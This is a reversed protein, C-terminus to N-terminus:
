MRNSRNRVFCSSSFFGAQSLPLCHASTLNVPTGQRSAYPHCSLRTYIDIHTGGALKRSTQPFAYDLSTGVFAKDGWLRGCARCPPGWLLLSLFVRPLRLCRTPLPVPPPCNIPPHILILGRKKYFFFFLPPPNHLATLPLPSLSLYIALEKLAPSRYLFYHGGREAGYCYCPSTRLILLAHQPRTPRKVHRQTHTYLSRSAPAVRYPRPSDGGDDGDANPPVRSGRVV